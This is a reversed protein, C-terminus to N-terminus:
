STSLPRRLEDGTELTVGGGFVALAPHDTRRPRAVSVEARAQGATQGVAAAQGAGAIGGLRVERLPLARRRGAPRAARPANGDIVRRHNCNPCTVEIELQERALEGFTMRPTGLAMASLHATAARGRLFGPFLRRAGTRQSARVPTLVRTRVSCSGTGDDGGRPPSRKQASTLRVLVHRPDEQRLPARPRVLPRGQADAPRRRRRGAGVQLAQRGLPTIKWGEPTEDILKYLALRGRIPMALNATRAM